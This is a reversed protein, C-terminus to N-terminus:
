HIEFEPRFHAFRELWESSDAKTSLEAAFPHRGPFRFQVRDALLSTAFTADGDRLRSFALMTVKKVCWAYMLTGEDIRLEHYAREAWFSWRDTMRGASPEVSEAMLMRGVTPM